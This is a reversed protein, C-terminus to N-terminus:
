PHPEDHSCSQWAFSRHTRNTQQGDDTQDGRRVDPGALLGRRQLYALPELPQDRLQHSPRNRVVVDVLLIPALGLLNDAAQVDLPFTQADLGMASALRDIVPSPLPIPDIQEIWGFIEKTEPILEDRM